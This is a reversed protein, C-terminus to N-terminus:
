RKVGLLQLAKEKSQADKPTWFVRTLKGEPNKENKKGCNPCNSMKVAETIAGSNMGCGDCKTEDVFSPNREGCDSCFAQYPKFRHTQAPNETPKPEPQPTPVPEPEKQAQRLEKKHRKMKLDLNEKRLREM